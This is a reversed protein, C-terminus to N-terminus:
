FYLILGIIIRLNIELFLLIIVYICEFKGEILKYLFKELIIMYKLVMNFLVRVWSLFFWIFSFISYINFFWIIVFNINVLRFVEINKKLSWIFEIFNIDYDRLM